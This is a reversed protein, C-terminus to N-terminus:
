KTSSLYREGIKRKGRGTSTVVRGEEMKSESGAGRAKKIRGGNTKADSRRSTDNRRRSETPSGRGEQTGRGREM